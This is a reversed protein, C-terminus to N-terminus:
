QCTLTAKGTRTGGGAQTATITIPTAVTATCTATVQTSPSASLQVSPDSATWTSNALAATGEGPGCTAVFSQFTQANGPSGASHNVSATSPGVNLAQPCNNGCGIFLLTVSLIGGFSKVFVRYAFM